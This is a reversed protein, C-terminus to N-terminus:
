RFSALMSRFCLGSQNSRGAFAVAVIAVNIKGILM